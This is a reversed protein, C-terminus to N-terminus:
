EGTNEVGWQCFNLFRANALHASGESREDRASVETLTTLLNELSRKRTSQSRGRARTLKVDHTKKRRYGEGRALVAYILVPAATTAARRKMM